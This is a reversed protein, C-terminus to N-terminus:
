WNQTHRDWAQMRKWVRKMSSFRATMLSQTLFYIENLMILIHVLLNQYAVDTLRLSYKTCIGM